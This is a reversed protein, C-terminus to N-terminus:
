ICFFASRIENSGAYLKILEELNIEDFVYSKGSYNNHGKIHKGQRGEHINLNFENKIRHRLKEDRYELKLADYREYRLYM